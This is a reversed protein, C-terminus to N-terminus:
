AQKSSSSIAIGGFTVSTPGPANMSHLARFRAESEGFISLIGCSINEWQRLMFSTTIGSPM